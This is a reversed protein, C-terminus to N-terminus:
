FPLEHNLWMITEENSEWINKNIKTFTGKTDWRTGGYSASAPHNLTYTYNTGVVIGEYAAADKGLFLVPVGTVSIIEELLFKTFNEWLDIHSGSKDKEVTLAANLMLVGQKALYSVDHTNIYNLNLGNYLEDEIGNYFQQLSPQVKETISCGFLLGDAVPLSNVFKFYPDMGVIVCLLEDIPTETFCRYTNISQPAIQKGKQSESKLHEYIPDFGGEEFFPKIKPAWTGFKPAFQKWDLRTM